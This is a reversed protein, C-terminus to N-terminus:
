TGGSTTGYNTALIGLDAVNVMGDLNADGKYTYKVLVDTTSVTQGAFTFPTASLDGALAYGLTTNQAPNAITNLATSSTIGHGDGTLGELIQNALTDRTSAGGAPIILNNNALDLQATWANPAGAINLASTVLAKGSGPTLAALAGAALTLSALHQTTQFNVTGASGVSVAAGSLDAPVTYTANDLSLSSATYNITTSGRTLSTPNVTIPDAPSTGVISLSGTGGAYALSPTTTSLNVTLAGTVAPTFNLPQTILATAVQYTPPNTTATNEWIQTNTGSTQVVETTGTFLTPFDFFNVGVLNNTSVVIPISATTPSVAFYHTGTLTEILNYSGAPVNTITYSGDAATVATPDGAAFVGTNNLDVFVTIGPIGPEGADRAGNGNNDQIVTGAVSVNPPTFLNFTGWRTGWRGDETPYSSLITGRTLSYENYVWFTFNNAPDIAMGSYDGWRDRSGGFERVYYDQGAALVSAPELTGAADTALRGTYYAGAYLSPGSAAFGIAMDGNADVAIAPYYTAAGASIGSGSVNGQDALAITSATATVRYWHATTVGADPGSGPVIINGFYLNNNRWVANYIREDGADLTTSTGPQPAGPPNSSSSINGVNVFTNTFTPSSLPNTIRIVAIQENSGSTFGSSVLFTGTSGPGAGIMVTPQLTFAQQGVSALTSPDYLNVTSTGGGYLGGGAGGTKSIIWLRSGQFSGFNGFTFMNATVYVANADLGLGPYDAWTNTSGHRRPFGVLSNIAQFTWGANPDSTNSVALLIRSTNAPDGASIDQQELVVVVFRNAYTDYIVKPDYLSNVPNLSAFFSGAATTQNMGLRQTNQLTGSKTWWQINCNVINIINTPGVAGNPDPPIFYFGANTANSDFNVAEITGTLTPAAPVTIPTTVPVRASNPNGDSVSFSKVYAPDLHVGATHDHAHDPAGYWGGSLLLRSELHELLARSLFLLRRHSQV